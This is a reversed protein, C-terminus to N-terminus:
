LDEALLIMMETFDAAEAFTRFTRNHLALKPQNSRFVFVDYGDGNDDGVIEGEIGDFHYSRFRSNATVEDDQTWLTGLSEITLRRRVRAETPDEDYDDSFQALHEYRRELESRMWEEADSKSDFDQEDLISTYTKQPLGLSTEVQAHWTTGDPSAATATAAYTDDDEHTILLWQNTGDDIESVMFDGDSEYDETVTPKMRAYIEDLSLAKQTPDVSRPRAPTPIQTATPVKDKGAGISGAMKGDKGQVYYAV